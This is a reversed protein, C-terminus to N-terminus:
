KTNTTKKGLNEPGFSMPLLEELSMKKFKEGNATFMLVPIDPAFERIAQRCIGCPSCLDEEEDTIVAIAKFSTIGSSIAKVIATREACIGVPYSANEVNCGTIYQGDTTLIVAGVRFNSYPAYAFNRAKQVQDFIEQFESETLPSYDCTKILSEISSTM